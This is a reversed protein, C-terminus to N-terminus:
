DMEVWKTGIWGAIEATINDEEQTDTYLFLEQKRRITRIAYEENKCADKYEKITMEGYFRICHLDKSYECNEITDICLIYQRARTGYGTDISHFLVLLSENELKITVRTKQYGSKRGLITIFNVHEKKVFLKSEYEVSYM